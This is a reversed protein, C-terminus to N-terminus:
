SALPGSLMVISRKFGAKRNDSESVENDVSVVEVELQPTWLGTVGSGGVSSELSCRGEGRVM